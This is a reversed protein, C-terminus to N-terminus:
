FEFRAIVVENAAGNRGKNDIKHGNVAILYREWRIKEELAECFLIRIWLTQNRPILEIM